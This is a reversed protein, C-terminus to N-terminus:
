PLRADASHGLKWGEIMGDLRFLGRAITKPGPPKYGKSTYGSWGGLRAVIWALWALTDPAHPNKLKETRGELKASFARLAPVDEPGAADSLPQGTSGSRGLVLQMIRVAAILAVVALKVFRRAESVQSAEAQVAASKLTRFVQEINWRAQYWIVIQRAKSVSEVAHTTLLCWHVPAEGAPPAIEVVDVVRLMVYEAVSAAATAPRKVMVEGFRLAVLSSREARGNRAAVTIESVEAVPMAAVRAFLREGDSLARDQAARTLLHVKEPRRAYQDYIDSERDAVSTIEAAEALVAGATEAGTLWRRSEKDDAPRSRRDAAKGGIRNIVQAGVLGIVGGRRADVALMPHLFLGIDRGNGAKGFGRKRVTHTAFNLETTDQIVLVHRGAARRGTLQGAHVLMEDASVAENDLFRGFQVVETRDEALAHMCM